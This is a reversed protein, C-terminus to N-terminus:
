DQVDPEHFDPSVDQEFDLSLRAQVRAAPTLSSLAARTAREAKRYIEEEEDEDSWWTTIHGALVNTGEHEVITWSVEAELGQEQAKDYFTEELTELWEEQKDKPAHTSIGQLPLIAILHPGDDEDDSDDALMGTAAMFLGTYGNPHLTDVWDELAADLDDEETYVTAVPFKAGVTWGVAGNTKDRLAVAWLPLLRQGAAALEVQACAIFEMGAITELNTVLQDLDPDSTREMPTIIYQETDDEPIDHFADRDSITPNTVPASANHNNPASRPTVPGKETSHKSAM